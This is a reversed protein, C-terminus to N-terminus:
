IKHIKSIIIQLTQSYKVLYIKTVLILVTTNKLRKTHLSRGDKQRVTERFKINIQRPNFYNLLYCHKPDPDPDPRIRIM